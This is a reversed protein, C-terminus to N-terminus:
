WGGPQKATSPANRAARASPPRPHSGHGFPSSLCATPKKRKDSAKPMAATHTQHLFLRSALPQQRRWFILCPSSIARCSLPSCQQWMWIPGWRGPHARRSLWWFDWSWHCSGMFGCGRNRSTTCLLLVFALTQTLGM